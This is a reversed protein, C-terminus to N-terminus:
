YSQGFIRHILRSSSTVINKNVIKKKRQQYKHTPVREFPVETNIYKRDTQITQLNLAVRRYM